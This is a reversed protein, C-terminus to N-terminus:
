FSLRPGRSTTSGAAPASTGIVVTAGEVLEAAQRAWFAEPDRAADDHFSRDSLLAQARFADSPAFTRQEDLLARITNQDYAM